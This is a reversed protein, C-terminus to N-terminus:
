HHLITDITGASGGGFVGTQTFVQDLNGYQVGLLYSASYCPSCAFTSRICCTSCRTTSKMRPM